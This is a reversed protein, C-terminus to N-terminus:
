LTVTNELRQIFLFAWCNKIREQQKADETLM